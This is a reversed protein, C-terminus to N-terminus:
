LSGGLSRNIDRATDSWILKDLRDETSEQDKANRMNSMGSRWESTKTEEVEPEWQASRGFPNMGFGGSKCGTLGASIAALLCITGALRGPMTIRERIRPRDIAKCDADEDIL